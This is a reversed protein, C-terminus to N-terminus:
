FMADERSVKRIVANTAVVLIFGVVSQYVSAASSLSFNNQVMLANYVFTDITQTVSYIMGSNRPVQYFLGFDSYFMRGMSLIFLTIATSKLGPLTIYRIQQWKTAGDIRAAEFYDASIGIITALYIVMGFGVGKWQNFFILIFPWWTTDIYFNIKELGLPALISNNIYGTENNLFAYALYNVIVWSMLFPLLVVTQYVRNAIKSRVENMLIAVTVPIVIGLVIFAINYLITNRTIIWANSSNFLYEFNDFGSWESGFIGARFNLKKFAIIIGFMPM